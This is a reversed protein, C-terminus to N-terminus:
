SVAARTRRRWFLFALLGWLPSVGGNMARCGGSDPAGVSVVRPVVEPAGAAGLLLDETFSSPRTVTSLRTLKARPDVLTALKGTTAVAIDEFVGELLFARGGQAGVGDRVAGRYDELLKAEDLDGLVLPRYPALPGVKTSAAVFLLLSVEADGGLRIGGIPITLQIGPLTFHVGIRSPGGVTARESRRAAIFYAGPRTYRELIGAGGSPLTFGNDALWRDLEPAASATLVVVVLPGIEVEQIVQVGLDNAGGRDAAAGCGIGGGGSDRNDYIEPRSYGELRDLERPDVASADVTPRVPVPILAGYDVATQPVTLEVVVETQEDRASIFIRQAGGGLEGSTSVPAAACAEARTVTFLPAFALGFLLRLPALRM